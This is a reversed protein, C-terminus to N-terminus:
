RGWRTRIARRYSRSARITRGDRLILTSDGNALPQIERIQDIAVIVRRHVRVFREADLRRAFNQLTERILHSRDGVHLALYNGQSEIWEVSALDLHSLRGRTKIAITEPAPAVRVRGMAHSLVAFACLAFTLLLWNAALQSQIEAMTPAIKGMLVWAALVCSILILAVSLTAASAAHVALNRWDRTALPFRRTLHLILPATSCGLLAAVGIRLAERDLELVYGMSRAHLVNGPELALLFVVWYLFACGLARLWDPLLDVSLMSDGKADPLGSEVPSARM